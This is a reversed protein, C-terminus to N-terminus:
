SVAWRPALLDPGPVFRDGPLVALTRHAVGREDLERMLDDLVRVDACRFSTFFVRPGLTSPRSRLHQLDFGAASLVSLTPQLSGRYDDYPGFALWVQAPSDVVPLADRTELLGYWVPPLQRLRESAPQEVWGAPVRAREIVLSGASGAIAAREEVTTRTPVLRPSVGM